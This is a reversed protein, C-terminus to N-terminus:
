SHEFVLIIVCPLTSRSGLRYSQKFVLLPEDSNLGRFKQKNAISVLGGVGSGGIIVHTLHRFKLDSGKKLWTIFGRLKKV